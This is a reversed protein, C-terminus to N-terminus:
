KPKKDSKVVRDKAMRRQKFGYDIIPAFMNALLLSFMFGGNFVSFNRIITTSLAIIAAYIIQAPRTRPASIPDTAMFFAGFLFGGGMLAPLIGAAGPVKIVTLFANALAYVVIVTIIIRRNATKTYFVYVGGLFTAVVSTVGMTGPLRGTLLDLLRPAEHGAKLLAMPTASTLADPVLGTSWTTLAGWMGHAAPAWVATM